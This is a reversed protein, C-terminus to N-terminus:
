SVHRGGLVSWRDGGAHLAEEIRKEKGRLERPLPPGTAQLGHGLLSLLVSAKVVIKQEM